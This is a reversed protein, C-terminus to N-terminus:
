HFRGCEGADAAEDADAERREEAVDEAREDMHGHHKVRLDVGDREDEAGGDADEEAEGGGAAGGCEVGDVGEAM